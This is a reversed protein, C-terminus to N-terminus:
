NKAGHDDARDPFHLTFTTGRGPAPTVSVSGGHREVVRRVNYLGLGFGKVNHLDGTPIRYFKEFIRERQAAEIGVGNDTVDITVGNNDSRATISVQPAPGSYKIASDILNGLATNLQFPDAWVTIHEPVDVHFAVPLPSRLEHSEVLGSLASLQTQVVRLYKERRAPDDDAGFNLLADGAAYAVAIPTKLEHTINHTFDLRMAELTKQRFLTRLLYILTFALLLVTLVSSVIMGAMERLFARNPNEIALRVVSARKSGIPIDFTRPRVLGGGPEGLEGLTQLEAGGESEVVSLRYPLLMDARALNLRLLSDYRVFDERSLGEDTAV